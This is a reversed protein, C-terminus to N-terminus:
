NMAQAQLAEQLAAMEAEIKAIKAKQKAIVAAPDARTAAYVEKRHQVTEPRHKYCYAGTRATTSCGAAVCLIKAPKPERKANATAVRDRKKEMVSPKHSYCYVVGDVLGRAGKGCRSCVTKANPPDLKALPVEPQTPESITDTPSTSVNNCAYNAHDTTNM